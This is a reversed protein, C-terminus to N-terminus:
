TAGFLRQQFERYQSVNEFYWPPSSKQLRGIVYYGTAMMAGDSADDPLTINLRAEPAGFTTNRVGLGIFLERDWPVLTKAHMTQGPTYCRGNLHPGFLEDFKTVFMARHAEFRSDVLLYFAKFRALPSLSEASSPGSSKTLDEFKSIEEEVTQQIHSQIKGADERTRALIMGLYTSVNYTYPEEKCPTVIVHPAALTAAESSPDCTLLYVRSFRKRLNRVIDPSHKGGSASIVIAAADPGLRGAEEEYTGEDAFIADKGRFLIQGVAFANGSGVVLYRDAKEFDLQPLPASSLLALANLVTEDLYERRTM